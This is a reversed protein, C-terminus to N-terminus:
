SILNLMFKVLMQMLAGTIPNPAPVRDMAIVFDNDHPMADLRAPVDPLRGFNPYSRFISPYMVAHNARRNPLVKTKSRINEVEFFKYVYPCTCSPFSLAEAVLKSRDKTAGSSLQQIQSVITM